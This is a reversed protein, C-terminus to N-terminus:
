ASVDHSGPMTELQTAGSVSSVWPTREPVFLELAPQADKLANHDDLVGVKIVKNPGFSAGDRFLTTGCDACFHSVIENGSDATKAYKKHSSGSVEFGEGPVIINTSYTSGTIKKCDACHCLAKAQIEGTYSIKLNGCFCSGSPM